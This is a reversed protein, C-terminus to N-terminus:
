RIGPVRRVGRVSASAHNASSSSRQGSENRDHQAVSSSSGSATRARTRVANAVGHATSGPGGGHPRAAAPSTPAAYRM